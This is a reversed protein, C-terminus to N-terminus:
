GQPDDRIARTQQVYKPRESPVEKAATPNGLVEDELRRFFNDLTQKRTTSLEVEHELYDMEAARKLAQEGAADSERLEHLRAQLEELERLIRGHDQRMVEELRNRM